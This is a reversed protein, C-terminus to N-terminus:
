AAMAEIIVAEGLRSRQEITVMNTTAGTPKLAETAANFLRWASFGQAAHEDHDPEHWQDIARTLQPSSFGGARYIDVLVNDGKNAAFGHNRMRDFKAEQETAMEPIRQVAGRILEPLRASIGTTQKTAFQAVNGHFCLNSCVMVQTGLVLGRPIRQDHSGRLGLTLKWDDATILDGELASIEMIGFMRQGDNTVAYEEGDIRIGSNHLALEVDDVYQAFPYPSHFRGMPPPTIMNAMMGRSVLTDNRASYMLNTM